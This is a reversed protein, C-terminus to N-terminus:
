RSKTVWFSCCLAHYNIFHHRVFLVCKMIFCNCWSKWTPYTLLLKVLVTHLTHPTIRTRRWQKKSLRLPGSDKRGLGIWGIHCDNLELLSHATRTRYKHLTFKNKLRYNKWQEGFLYKRRWLDLLMIWLPIRTLTGGLSQKYGGLWPWGLMPPKCKGPLNGQNISTSGIWDRNAVVLRGDTAWWDAEM